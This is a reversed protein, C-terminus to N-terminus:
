IRTGYRVGTANDYTIDVIGGPNLGQADWANVERIVYCLGADFDQWMGINNRAFTINSAIRTTFNTNTGLTTWNILRWQYATANITQVSLAYGNMYYTSEAFTPISINLSVAGTAPSYKILRNGSIAVLTASVASAAAEAGAVEATGKSYEIVTPASVDTLDWYVQGTRLDYCEWVSVPLTRYTGNVLTLMPKTLTQYCRGQYIISPTGGGSTGSVLGNDGGVLGSIAGLRKWVVHATNPAQVYPTFTGTNRTPVWYTSTDAPWNYSNVGAAPGRWPYDGLISAWERNNSSVPRTWYDTPLPAPPWSLVAEEQVTLTQEATSAPKYYVSRTFVETVAAASTGAGGTYNGPPFYGGPFEFKLKWAGVQDVVYEFYATGDAPYSNLTKVETTADPKTITVKYGAFYRVQSPGDTLWINVLIIQGIGVPNPRFSLYATPTVVMDPTVGAPLPVSGNAAGSPAGGHSVEEQANTPLMMLTASAMLLVLAITVATKTKSIAFHM